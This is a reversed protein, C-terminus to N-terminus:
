LIICKKVNNNDDLEQKDFLKPPSPSKIYEYPSPPPPPLVNNITLFEKKPFLNDSAKQSPLTLKFGSTSDKNILNDEADLSRITVAAVFTDSM